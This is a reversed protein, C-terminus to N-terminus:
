GVVIAKRVREVQILNCVVSVIARTADKKLFLEKVQTFIIRPNFIEECSRM